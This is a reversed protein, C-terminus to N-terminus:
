YKNTIKQVFFVIGNLIDNNTYGLNYFIRYYKENDVRILIIVINEKQKNLQYINYKFNKVLLNILKDDCKNLISFELMNYGYCDIINDDLKENEQKITYLDLKIHNKSIKKWLFNFKKFNNTLLALHIPHLKYKNNTNNLLEPNKIIVNNILNLNNSTFILYHLFSVEFEETKYFKNDIKIFYKYKLFDVTDSYYYFMKELKTLEKSPIHKIFINIDKKFINMLIEKM